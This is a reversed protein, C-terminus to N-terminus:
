FIWTTRNPLHCYGNEDPFPSTNDNEWLKRVEEDRLDPIQYPVGRGLASKWGLIAIESLEVARYVTYFPEEEGRVYNIFKEMVWFDGGGHGAKSALEGKEKWEAPYVTETPTDETPKGWKNYCLRMEDTKSGRVTEISGKTCSLRYWNQHPQLGCSGAIRFIAGNSMKVLMIGTRDEPEGDANRDMAVAATVQVPDLGTALMIPAMAHTSYYTKPNYKRWHLPEDNRGAGQFKKYGPHVYEGEAFGVEGLTGEKYVRALEMRQKSFPYNEALMYKAGTREVARVLAVAEAMTSAPTCESLVAIGKELLRVAYPSHENFYNTLVCADMKVKIFEEFDTFFKTKETGMKAAREFTESRKDCMAVIEVNDLVKVQAAYSLGRGLGFVGLRIKKKRM